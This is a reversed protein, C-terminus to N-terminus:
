GTTASTKAWLGNISDVVDRTTLRTTRKPKPRKGGTPKGPRKAGARKGDATALGISRAIDPYKRVFDKYLKATGGRAHLDDIRQWTHTIDPWVEGSARKMRGPNGYRGVRSVYDMVDQFAVGTHDSLWGCVASHPDDGNDDPEADIEAATLRDHRKDEGVTWQYLGRCFDVIHPQVEQKPM